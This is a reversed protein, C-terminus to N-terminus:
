TQKDVLKAHCITKSTGVSPMAEHQLTSNTDLQELDEGKWIINELLTVALCTNLLNVHQKAICLLWWSILIIKVINYHNNKQRHWIRNRLWYTSWSAMSFVHMISFNFQSFRNEWYKHLIIDSKNDIAVVLCSGQTFHFMCKFSMGDYCHEPIIMFCHVLRM